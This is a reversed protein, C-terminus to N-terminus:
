CPQPQAGRPQSCSLSSGLGQGVPPHCLWLGQTPMPSPCCGLAGWPARFVPDAGALSASCLARARSPMACGRDSPVPLAVRTSVPNQLAGLGWGLVCLELTGPPNVRPM